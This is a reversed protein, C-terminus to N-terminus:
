YVPHIKSKIKTSKNEFARKLVISHVLAKFCLHTFDCSCRIRGVGVVM